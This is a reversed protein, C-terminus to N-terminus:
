AAWFQTNLMGAQCVGRGFCVWSSVHSVSGRIVFGDLTQLIVVNYPHINGIFDVMGVYPIAIVDSASVAVNGLLPVDVSQLSTLSLEAPIGETSIPPSLVASCLINSLQLAISRSGASSVVVDFVTITTVNQPM